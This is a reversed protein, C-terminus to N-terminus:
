PTTTTNTAAATTVVTTTQPTGAGYFSQGKKVIVVGTANTFTDYYGFTGESEGFTYGFSVGQMMESSTFKIKTTPLTKVQHMAKDENIWTIGTGPLVTLEAPEFTNNRIYITTIKTSPTATGKPTAKTTVAVTPEATVNGEPAATPEATPAVTQEATAPPMTAGPTPVETTVVATAAPTAVTTTTPTQTPQTCGSAAVLLIVLIVLGFFKKM